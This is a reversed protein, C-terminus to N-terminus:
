NKELKKNYAYFDYCTEFFYITQILIFFIQIYPSFPISYRQISMLGFILSFLWVCLIALFYRHNQYLYIMLFIMVIIAVFELMPTLFSEFNLEGLGGFDNLGEELLMYIM